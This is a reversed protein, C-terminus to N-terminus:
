TWPAGRGSGAEATAPAPVGPWRRSGIWPVDACPEESELTLSKRAGQFADDLSIEISAEVDGGRSSRSERGTAGGSCTKWAPAAAAGVGERPRDPASTASSRASSTRSTERNVPTETSWGFARWGTRRGEQAAYRQWDPGLSDYRRRKDPDSLVEYAEAVEKFKEENDKGKAVDPHHKRALKRYASKIAKEDAKRDVGLIRYYDKFELAM